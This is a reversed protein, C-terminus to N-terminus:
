ESVSVQFIYICVKMSLIILHTIKYEVTLPNPGVTGGVCVVVAVMMVVIIGTVVCGERLTVERVLRPPLLVGSNYTYLYLGLARM